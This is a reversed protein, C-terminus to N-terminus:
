PVAKGNLLLDECLVYEEMEYRSRNFNRRVTFPRAYAKPDDITMDLVLKNAGVRHLREVLHMANSHVHGARDLWTYEHIAVTDMVFTDGDWKGVSHGFWTNPVDEPHGRGDAWIRRVENGWEFIILTYKPTHIIEFPHELGQWAATPGRPFCRFDPNLENRGRQGRGTPDKAYNYRDEAWPQMPLPETTLSFQPDNRDVAWVGTLDRPNSPLSDSARAAAGGQRANQAFLAASFALVAGVAFISGMWRYRM